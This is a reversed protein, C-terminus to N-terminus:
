LYIPNQAQLFGVPNQSQLRLQNQGGMYFTRDPLQSPNYSRGAIQRTASGSGAQGMPSLRTTYGLLGSAGLAGGLAAGTLAREPAGMPDELLNMAAGAGAIRTGAQAAAGVRDVRNFLDRIKAPTRVSGQLAKIGAGAAKAGAAGPVLLGLLALNGALKENKTEGLTREGRSVPRQDDPLAGFAINDVLDFFFKQVAKSESRFPLGLQAAVFAVQEAQDDTYNQPNENYAFVLQKARQVPDM